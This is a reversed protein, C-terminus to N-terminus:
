LPFKKMINQWYCYNKASNERNKSQSLVFFILVAVFSLSQAISIRVVQLKDAGGADLVHLINIITNNVFHDAMGMYLAGSLKDLLLYKFGVLSSTTVLLILNVTMQMANSDGDFYSQVPGIAHWLGFLLSAFIGATLFGHKEELIKQFLGRFVGEEMVVNIINGAICILFFAAEKHMGFNGTVSYSSVYFDLREFSACLILVEALYAIAFFALGFCAGCLLGSFDKTFGIRAPSYSLYRAVAFLIVIGALKHFINEGLVTADTRLVFYEFIRLALCVLYIALVFFVPATM